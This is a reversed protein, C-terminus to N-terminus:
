DLGALFEELSDPLNPVDFEQYTLYPWVALYREGLSLSGDLCCSKIKYKGPQTGDPMLDGRVLDSTASFQGAPQFSPVQHWQGDEDLKQVEIWQTNRPIGSLGIHQSVPQSTRPQQGFVPELKPEPKPPIIIIFDIPIKKEGKGKWEKPPDAAVASSSIVLVGVLALCSSLLILRRM